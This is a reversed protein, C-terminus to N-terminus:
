NNARERSGAQEWPTPIETFPVDPRSLLPSEGKMIDMVEDVIHKVAYAPSVEGSYLLSIGLQVTVQVAMRLDEDTV